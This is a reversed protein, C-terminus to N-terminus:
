WKFQVGVTGGIPMEINSGNMYEVEAHASWRDTLKMAVGTAVEFRSGSLDHSFANDNVKFEDGKSFEHALAARVYPQLTGGNDLQLNRGATVGAKGVFSWTRDGKAQMGNDLEYDQGQIFGTSWRTFPEVFYGDNLKINRGFEVSGSVGTNGYDGKSKTGDSMAVDAKNEFRNLKVTGDVYYGSADDMWTLYSGLYYSDVTGSSGHSLSLDSQSYGAMVGLLWQGDGLPADVGLAFGQQTQRYGDGFAGGVNYKNGYVRSWPGSKRTNFRVEGIRTRLSADEGYLVTLPAGFLASVVQTSPSVTRKTPDLFWDKGAADQSLGYSYTGLDVAGDANALSFRADGGQTHVVTIPQGSAPDVGSSTVLLQHNGSAIGTVNLVDSQHTNFNVGMVFLGTGSLDKVDLQYYADEAGFRVTGGDLMDLHGVQSNGTLNWESQHDIGVAAVNEMRGTLLSGQQLRVNATSGSEAIVDGTLSAHNFNLNATSNGAVQVNGNLASHGVSMNVSAAGLVDLITGNGGTLTSGNLVHIDTTTDGTGANDVVIAAGTKGEVSSNDLVLQSGTGPVEVKVMVGNQGGIIHSGNSASATGSFLTLGTSTAGTGEVTSNSLTLTSFATVRAGLTQGTVRSGTVTATSGTSTGQDHAVQLGTNISSITSDTITATSNVLEVAGRGGNGNVTANDLNVHSGNEASIQRTTGGNVNVTSQLANIDLAESGNVNLVSNRSLSWAQAGESPIVTWNEEVLDRADADVAVLSIMALSPAGLAIVIPKLHFRYKQLIM